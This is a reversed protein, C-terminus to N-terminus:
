ELPLDVIFALICFLVGTSIAVMAKIRPGGPFNIFRTLNPNLMSVIGLILTFVGVLLFIINVFEM